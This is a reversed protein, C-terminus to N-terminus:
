IGYGTGLGAEGGYGDGLHTDPAARWRRQQLEAGWEGEDQAATGVGAVVVGRTEPTPAAATDAASRKVSWASKAATSPRSWVRTLGGLLPGTTIAGVSGQSDHTLM